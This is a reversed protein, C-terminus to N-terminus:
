GNEQEVEILLLEQGPSGLRLRDGVAVETVTKIQRGNLYTGYTSHDAVVVVGKESYVSCHFRSIGATAGELEVRRGNEPPTVGLCLPEETIPHAVVGYLLHTPQRRPPANASVVMPASPAVELAALGSASPLRARLTLESGPSEIHQRHRLAGKAASGCPLVELGNEAISSLGGMLGPLGAIRDTVLLTAPEGTSALSRGLEIVSELKAKSVSELRELSLEISRETGGSELTATHYGSQSISSLWLPLQDYLAQESSGHHFPDFRTERVFLDAIMRAWSDWLSVLGVSEVVEVRRRILEDQNEIETWALRHLSVDLHLFRKAAGRQGAAAVAADVMGTVAIECARAVGLLLGLQQSSYWGPVALLVSATEASLDSERGIATWVASLHAHVIDAHSLSRPFPRPLSETSLLDWFRHNIWRPKLRASARAENGVVLDSGDLLTFGPSPTTLLGGDDAAVIGADNLEIAIAAM